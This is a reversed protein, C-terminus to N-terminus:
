MIVRVRDYNYKLSMECFRSPNFYDLATGINEFKKLYLCTNIANTATVSQAEFFRSEFAHRLLFQALNNKEKLISTVNYNFCFLFDRVTDSDNCNLQLLQLFDDKLLFYFGSEDNHFVNKLRKMLGAVLRYPNKMVDVSIRVLKLLLREYPYKQLYINYLRDHSCVKLGSVFYDDPLYSTKYPASLDLTNMIRCKPVINYHGEATSLPYQCFNTKRVCLDFFYSNTFRVFKAVNHRNRYLLVNQFYQLFLDDM